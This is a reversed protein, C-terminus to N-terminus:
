QEQITNTQMHVALERNLESRRSASYEFVARPLKKIIAPAFHKEKVDNVIFEIGIKFRFSDIPYSYRVQGIVLTPFEIENTDINLLLYSKSTLQKPLCVLVGGSSFNVSDTEIWRLRALRHADVNSPPLVACRVPCAWDYRKFKRRSLPVLKEGLELCCKGGGTRKLKADVSIRQGKLTFQVITKQNNILTDIMGSHGSRDVSLIGNNVMIVKTSLPKGQFQETFLVIERGVLSSLDVADISISAKDGGTKESKVVM